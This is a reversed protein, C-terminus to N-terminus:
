RRRVTVTAGNRHMSWSLAPIEKSQQLAPREAALVRM